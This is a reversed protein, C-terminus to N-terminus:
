ENGGARLPYYLGRRGVEVGVRKSARSNGQHDTLREATQRRMRGVGPKLGSPPQPEGTCRGGGGHREIERGAEGPPSCRIWRVPPKGGRLWWRSRVRVQPVLDGNRTHRAETRPRGVSRYNQLVCCLDARIRRRYGEGGADDRESREPGDLGDGTTMRRDHMGGERRTRPVLGRLRAEGSRRRHFPMLRRGAG